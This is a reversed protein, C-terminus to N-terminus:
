KGEATRDISSFSLYYLIMVWYILYSVIPAFFAFLLGTTRIILSFLIRRHTALAHEPVIDGYAKSILLHRSIGLGLTAVILLVISYLVAAAPLTPYSGAVNTAYPVFAAGALLGTNFLMTTHDIVKVGSFMANHLRWYNIVVGFSLLFALLRPWQEFLRHVLEPNANGQVNPVAFNLILLTASIAFIGDSFQNLRHPTM